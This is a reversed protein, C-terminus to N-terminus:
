NASKGVSLRQETQVEILGKKWSRRSFGFAITRPDTKIKLLSVLWKPITFSFRLKGDRLRVM